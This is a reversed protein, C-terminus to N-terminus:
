GMCSGCGVLRYEYLNPEERGRGGICSFEDVFAHDREHRTDSFPNVGTAAYGIMEDYIARMDPDSLVQWTASM